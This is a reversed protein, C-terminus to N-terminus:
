SRTRCHARNLLAPLVSLVVVGLTALLNTTLRSTLLNVRESIDRVVTAVYDTANRVQSFHEDILEKVFVRLHWTASSLIKDLREDLQQYNERDSEGDLERVIVDRVIALRDGSEEGMYPWRALRVLENDSASIQGQPHLAVGVTREPGAFTAQIQEDEKMPECRDATFLVCLHFLHRRLATAMDERLEKAHGDPSVMLHLPTLCELDFGTWNLEQHKATQYSEVRRHMREGVEAIQSQVEQLDDPGTISVMPGTCCVRSDLACILIKEFPTEFLERDLVRLRKSLLECLKEEFLYVVPRFCQDDIGLHAALLAKDVKISFRRIADNGKIRQIDDDATDSVTGEKLLSATTSPGVQFEISQGFDEKLEDLLDADLVDFHEQPLRRELSLRFYECGETVGVPIGRDEELSRRLNHLATAAM